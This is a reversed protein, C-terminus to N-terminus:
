AMDWQAKGHEYKFQRLVDRTNLTAHSGQAGGSPRQESAFPSNVGIESEEDLSIFVNSLRSMAGVSPLSGNSPNRAWTEAQQPSASRSRRMRKSHGM